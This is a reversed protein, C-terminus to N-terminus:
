QTTVDEVGRVKSIDEYAKAAEKELGAQAVKERLKEMYVEHEAKVKKQGEIVEVQLLKLQEILDPIIEIDLPTIRNFSDEITIHGSYPNGTLFFNLTEEGDKKIIRVCKEIFIEM